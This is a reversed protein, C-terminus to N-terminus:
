PYLPVLLSNSGKPRKTMVELNPYITVVNQATTILPPRTSTIRLQTISVARLNTQNGLAQTVEMMNRFIKNRKRTHRSYKITTRLLSDLFVITLLHRLINIIKLLPLRM